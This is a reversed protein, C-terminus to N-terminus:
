AVDVYPIYAHVAGGNLQTSKVRSDTCPLNILCLRPNLLSDCLVAKSLASCM